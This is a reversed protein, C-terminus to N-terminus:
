PNNLTFPVWKTQGYFGDGGFSTGAKRFKVQYFHSGSSVKSGTPSLTESGRNGNWGFSTTAGWASSWVASKNSDAVLVQYEAGPTNSNAAFGFTSTGVTFTGNPAISPNFPWAVDFNSNATSGSAVDIGTSVYAGVTNILPDTIVQGGDDYFVQYRGNNLSSFAFNGKTDSTTSTSQRQWSAGDFKKLSLALAQGPDGGKFSVRGSLSPTQGTPPTTAGPLNGCGPTPTLIATALLALSLKALTNM